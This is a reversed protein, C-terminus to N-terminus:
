AFIHLPQCIIFELCRPGNIDAYYGNCVCRYMYLAVPPPLYPSFFLGLLFLPTFQACVPKGCMPYRTYSHLIYLSFLLSCIPYLLPYLLPSYLPQLPTFMNSVPSSFISASFSHVYQICSLVSHVYTCNLQTFIYTYVLSIFLNQETSTSFIPCIYAHIDPRVTHINFLNFPLTCLPSYM